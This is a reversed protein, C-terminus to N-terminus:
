PEAKTMNLGKGALYESLKGMKKDNIYIYSQGSGSTPGDYKYLIWQRGRKDRGYLKWKWVVRYTVLFLTSSFCQVM